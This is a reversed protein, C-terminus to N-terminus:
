GFLKAINISSRHAVDSGSENLWIQARRRGQDHLSRLFTPHAIVKTETRQLTALDTGEIMHFRAALIRREMQGAILWPRKACLQVAQGLTQMERFFPATFALEASRQRIEQATAPTRNHRLPSILVLLVDHPCTASLLPIVAPNAAYGGDWYFEGDIEVPHHLSPLCASALLHDATLEHERFLRLRGTNAQTAAIFLKCISTRQLLHFDIQAQVIDRLPNYQMPNFQSPSLWYTWDFLLRGAPSLTTSEGDGQALMAASSNAVANWFAALAERAMELRTSRHCNTGKSLGYTLVVANMAGSSTGSIADFDFRGDELLADLVGWTFAGHAGGGQLALGLPFSTARRLLTMITNMTRRRDTMSAIPCDCQSYKEKIAM